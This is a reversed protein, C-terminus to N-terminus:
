NRFIIPIKLVLAKKASQKTLQSSSQKMHRFVKNIIEYIDIDEKDPNSKIFACGLEQEIAKQKKIQYDINRDNHWNEDIEIAFIYNHFYIDIM